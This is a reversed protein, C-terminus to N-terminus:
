IKDPAVNYYNLIFQALEKFAPVVTQGALPSGAPKDLRIIITFKPDFAPAFGAYTNIVKDSYGKGGFNPIFATGTKGAVSYDPIAALVNKEMASVMMKAVKGATDKSIARRVAQPKDEALIIPKMLTGGNAIASIASILEIPTVAVGQGYAATAFDIDYGSKLNNINGRVEGPLKIGTLENFGFKVLYNYFIDPGTKREAFVAGTNISNEIVDTMTARGYAGHSAYDWNRITKGNATFSGIDTYETDPTIKGSDIGASMTILKFVSGPEYVGQVTPNLFNSVESKSYDNPNFNPFAAMALIKGTKPDQVLVSGAEAEYRSILNKVIKEAEFQISRDITLFLDKGSEAEALKGGETGGAKGSLSNNFYAEVGYRGSEREESSDTFGLLHAALDGLPYYRFFLNKVYIGKINLNQIEKTQEASAKNALLEYEDGQKNLKGILDDPSIGAILSLKEACDSISVGSEQIEKPVAYITPYDKNLAAAASNGNKDTFYIGGRPAEFFGSAQQQAEAKSLYYGSKKVQLNYINGILLLYIAGFVLILSKIRWHM